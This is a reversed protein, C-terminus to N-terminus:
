AEAPVARRGLQRWWAVLCLVTWFVLQLALLWPWLHYSAPGLGDGLSMALLNAFADPTIGSADQPGGAPGGPVLGVGPPAPLPANVAVLSGAGAPGGPRSSTTGTPPAPASGGTPNGSPTGGPPPTGGVCAVGSVCTSPVPVPVPTPLPTPLATPLPVPLASSAASPNLTVIVPLPSATSGSGACILTGGVCVTPLASPLPSLGLLHPSQASVRVATPALM